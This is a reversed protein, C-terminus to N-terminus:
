DIEHSLRQTRTKIAHAKDIDIFEHKEADSIM